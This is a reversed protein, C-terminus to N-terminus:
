APSLPTDLDRKLFIAFESGHPTGQYHSLDFGCIVFGLRQYAAIAPLNDNRTELWIRPFGHAIAYGVVQDMLTRGVGQRRAGRDVYFHSVVIRRNWQSEEIAAFGCVKEDITVVWGSMPDADLDLRYENAKKTPLEQSRLRPLGEVYSWILEMATDYSRDMKAVQV